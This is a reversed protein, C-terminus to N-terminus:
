VGPTGAVRCEVDVQVSASFHQMEAAFDERQRLFSAFIGMGSTM